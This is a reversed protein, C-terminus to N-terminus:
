PESHSSFFVVAVALTDLYSFPNEQRLFITKRWDTKVHENEFLAYFQAIERRAQEKPRIEPDEAVLVIEGCVGPNPASRVPASGGGESPWPVGELHASM